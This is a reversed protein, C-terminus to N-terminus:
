KGADRILLGTTSVMINIKKNVNATVFSASGYEADVLFSLIPYKLRWYFIDILKDDALSYVTRHKNSEDEIEIYRGAVRDLEYLTHLGFLNAISKWKLIHADIYFEDGELNFQKESRDPFTIRATYLQKRIPFVEVSAALEERTFANYGQISISITLLLIFVLAAIILPDSM